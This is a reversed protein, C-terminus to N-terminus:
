EEDDLWALRGTLRSRLWYPWHTLHRLNLPRDWWNYVTKSPVFLDGNPTEGVYIGKFDYVRDATETWHHKILNNRLGKKMHIITPSQSWGM